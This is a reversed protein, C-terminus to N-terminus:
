LGFREKINGAALDLDKSSGKSAQTVHLPVYAGNLDVPECCDKMFSDESKEEMQLYHEASVPIKHMNLMTLM